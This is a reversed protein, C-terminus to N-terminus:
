KHWGSALSRPEREATVYVRPQISQDVAEPDRFMERLQAIDVDDQAASGSPSKEIWLALTQLMTYVQDPLSQGTYYETVLGVILFFMAFRGNIREPSPGWGSRMSEAYDLEDQRKEWKGSLADLKNQQEALEVDSLEVGALLPTVSRRVVASSLRCASAPPAFALCQTASLVLCLVSILRPM